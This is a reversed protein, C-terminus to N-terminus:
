LAFTVGAARMARYQDLGDDIQQIMTEADIKKLFLAQVPPYWVAWLAQDFHIGYYYIILESQAAKAILADVGPLKPPAPVGQVPSIMGLQEARKAAAERSTFRRLYEVALETQPERGKIIEPNPVSWLQPVGFMANQDGQGEPLVPFDTVGIEFDAPIVDAMESLLWSGMHIMAAKGQFFLAQAATFDAGEYGEMFWNNAPLKELEQAAALFGPNDALRANGFVVAEVAERGVMRQIIRDWWHGCYVDTPGSVCIPKMGMAAGREDIQACTDLFDQWTWDPAPPAIGMQDFAKKNYQILFLVLENPVGFWRGQTSSDEREDVAFSRIMPAFTDAWREGSPLTEELYPTLDLVQKNDVYPWLARAQNSWRGADVDLPDGAEWRLARAADSATNNFTYKISTGPIDREMQDGIEKVLEFWPGEEYFVGVELPGGTLTSAIGDAAGPAATPVQAAPAQGCAAAAVGFSAAAALGLFERRSLSRSKHAM